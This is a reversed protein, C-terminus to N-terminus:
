EIETMGVDKEMGGVGPFGVKLTLYCSPIQKVREVMFGLLELIMRLAFYDSIYKDYRYYPYHFREEPVLMHRRNSDKLVLAQIKRQQKLVKKVPKFESIPITSPYFRIYLKFTYESYLDWLPKRKIEIRFFRPYPSKVISNYSVKGAHILVDYYLKSSFKGILIKSNTPVDRNACLTEINKGVLELSRALEEPQVPM